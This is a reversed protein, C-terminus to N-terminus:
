SAFGFSQTQTPPLERHPAEFNHSAERAHIMKTGISLNERGPAHVLRMVAYSHVCVNGSNSAALLQEFAACFCVHDFVTVRTSVIELQLLAPVVHAAGNPIGLCKALGYKASGNSTGGPTGITCDTSTISSAMKRRRFTFIRPVGYRPAYIVEM